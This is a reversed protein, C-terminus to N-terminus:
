ARRHRDDNDDHRHRHSAARPEIIVFATTTTKAGIRCAARPSLPPARVAALHRARTSNGAGESAEWALWARLDAARLAALATLTPEEGLHRTLFGLFAATDRGYAEVTLPSASRQEGAAAYSYLTNSERSAREPAKQADPCPGGGDCDTFHRDPVDAGDCALEFGGLQYVGGATVVNYDPLLFGHM